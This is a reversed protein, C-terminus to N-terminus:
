ILLLILTTIGWVTMLYHTQQSSQHSVWYHFWNGGVLFSGWIIIFGLTAWGAFLTAFSVSAAGLLGLILLCTAAALALAVVSEVIVVSRFILKHIAPSTIANGKVQEYIEPYTQSMSTMSFVDQVLAYNVEPARINEYAGILLWGALLGVLICQAALELVLM